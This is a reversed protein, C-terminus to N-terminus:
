GINQITMLGQPAYNVLCGRADIGIERKRGTQAFEIKRYDWGLAVSLNNAIRANPYYEGLNYLVGIAMGAPLDPHVTIPILKDGAYRNKVGAISLTGEGNTQGMQMQLRVIPATSGLIVQDSKKKETTSVWIEDVSLKYSDYLTKFAVDFQEVGTTSDGTLTAGGMDKYYGAGAVSALQILGDYDNANASKDAGNARATSPVSDIQVGNVGCTTYTGVYKSNAVGTSSGIYVNYAVAGKLAPWKITISKDGANGGATTAITVETAVTEGQVDSGTGGQGTVGAKYGQLTLGSVAVFYNTGATLSGINTAAQTVNTKTCTPGAGLATLNGGLLLKEEALMMNQLCALVAFEEAQFDQGPTIRSSAGFQAEPTLFDEMELSKFAYAVDTENFSVGTNRGTTSSTAEPVSGWVNGNNINTVKRFNLAAGGYVSRPLRNRLPTLVPYLLKAPAELPYGLLGLGTTVGANGTVTKEIREGNEGIYGLEGRLSKRLMDKLLERKEPSMKQLIESHM